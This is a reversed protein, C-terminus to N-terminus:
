CVYVRVSWTRCCRDCDYDSISKDIGGLLLITIFIIINKGLKQTRVTVKGSM